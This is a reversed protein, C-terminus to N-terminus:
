VQTETVATLLSSGHFCYNAAIRLVAVFLLNVDGVPARRCYMRTGLAVGSLKCGVLFRRARPVLISPLTTLLLMCLIACIMVDRGTSTATAPRGSFTEM